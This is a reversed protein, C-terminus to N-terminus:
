VQHRNSITIQGSAEIRSGTSVTSVAQCIQSYCWDRYVRVSRRVVICLPAGSLALASGYWSWYPEGGVNGLQSLAVAVIQDDAGYIGYLVSAWMSSDQALLEAVQVKQDEAFGYQAMMEEVTKHSVTIYLYVTTEEVEEEIINGEGDDTEIIVTETKEETEYSIENMEWFIDKLLQKKEDTM